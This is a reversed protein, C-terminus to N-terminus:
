MEEEEKETKLTSSWDYDPDKKLHCMLKIAKEYDLNIKIEKKYKNKEKQKGQYHAFHTHNMWFKVPFALISGYFAEGNNCRVVCLWDPEEQISFQFPNKPQSHGIEDEDDEDLSKLVTTEDVKQRKASREKIEKEEEEEEERRRKMRKGKGNNEANVRDNTSLFSYILYM